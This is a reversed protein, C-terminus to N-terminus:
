TSQQPKVKSISRDNCSRNVNKQNFRQNSSQSVVLSRNSIDRNNSGRHSNKSSKNSKHKAESITSSTSNGVYDM